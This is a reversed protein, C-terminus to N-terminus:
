SISPFYLIRDRRNILFYFEDDTWRVLNPWVRDVQRDNGLFDWVVM